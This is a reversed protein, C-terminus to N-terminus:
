RSNGNMFEANKCYGHLRYFVIVYIKKRLIECPVNVWSTAHAARWSIKWFYEDHLLLCQCHFLKQSINSTSFNSTWPKEIGVGQILFKNSIACIKHFKWSFFKFSETRPRFNFIFSFKWYYSDFNHYIFNKVFRKKFIWFEFESWWQFLKFRTYFQFIEGCVSWFSFFKEIAWFM